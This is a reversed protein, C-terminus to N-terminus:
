IHIDCVTSVLLKTVMYPDINSAHRRDKFYGCKEEEIYNPIRFSDGRSQKRGSFTNWDATDSKGSLQNKHDEGNNEIHYPQIVELRKIAQRIVTLGNHNRMSETSFNIHCKSVNWDDEIPTPRLGLQYGYKELTRNIIYRMILLSDSCYISYDRIQFEWQSPAVESHLGTLKLGAKLCNSFAELIIDREWINDGGIGCYYPGQPKPYNNHFAIPIGEKSIFFEQEIGFLPKDSEAYKM